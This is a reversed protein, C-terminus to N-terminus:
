KILNIKRVFVDPGAQLRYFYVGSSLNAGDFKFQHEGANLTGSVLNAVVRGAIDYIKLSVRQNEVLSFVITTTPNFPNPFNRLRAIKDKQGNGQNDSKYAYTSFEFVAESAFVPPLNDPQQSIYPIGDGDSDN